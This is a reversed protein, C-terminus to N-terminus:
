LSDTFPTLHIVNEKLSETREPTSIKKEKKKKKKKKIEQNGEEVLTDMKPKKPTIDDELKDQSSKKRKRTSQSTPIPDKSHKGVDDLSGQDTGTMLRNSDKSLKKQQKKKHKGNRKKNQNNEM